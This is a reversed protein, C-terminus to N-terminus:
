GLELCVRQLGPEGPVPACAFGLSRALRLMADNELLVDGRVTRLRKRRAWQVLRTLMWAGLGLRALPRAVLIAFDASDGEISARAVAGVLAEGPPLPEAAVLAFERRADPTALRLAEAEGLETMPHLFRLRVEEPTLVAFGARLAPADRRDIPRLVLERGNALAIRETWPAEGHALRVPAAHDPRARQSRRRFATTAM